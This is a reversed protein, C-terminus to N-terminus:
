NPTTPLFRGTLLKRVGVGAAILAASLVSIYLAASLTLDGEEARSFDSGLAADLLYALFFWSLALFGARWRGIALGFAVNVLVFLIGRGGGVDDTKEDVTIEIGLIALGVYALVAIVAWM